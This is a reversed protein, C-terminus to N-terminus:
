AEAEESEDGKGMANLEEEMEPTIEVDVVEPETVNDNKEAVDEEKNASKGQLRVELGLM